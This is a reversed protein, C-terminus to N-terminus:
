ILISKIIKHGNLKLYSFKQIDIDIFFSLLETDNKYISYKIGDMYNGDTFYFEYLTEFSNMKQLVIKLLEYKNTFLYKYNFTNILNFIKNLFESYTLIKSYIQRKERKKLLNLLQNFEKQNKIDVTNLNELIIEDPLNLLISEVNQVTRNSSRWNNLIEEPTLSKNKFSFINKLLNSM